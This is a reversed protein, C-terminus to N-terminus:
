PRAEGRRGEFRSRDGGRGIRQLAEVDASREGSWLWTAFLWKEDIAPRSAHRATRGTRGPAKPPVLHPAGPHNGCWFISVLVVPAKNTTPPHVPSRM